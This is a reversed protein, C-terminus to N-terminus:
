VVASVSHLTSYMSSLVLFTQLSASSLHATPDVCVLRPIATYLKPPWSPDGKYGSKCDWGILFFIVAYIYM